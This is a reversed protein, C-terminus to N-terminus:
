SVTVNVTVTHTVTGSTGTITVPYTGAPTQLPNSCGALVVLLAAAGALGLRTRFRRAVPLMFLLMLAFATLAIQQLSIPPRKVSAPPILASGQTTVMVNATAPATVPVSPATCTGDPITISCSLTVAGTFGGVGGVTVAVSATAGPAVTVPQASVTFDWATGTLNLTQPSGAANDAINLIAAQAGSAGAPPTFTVNIVCTNGPTVAAGSTCTTGSAIAFDASNTGSVSPAATINLNANGTNKVTVTQATATTTVLQGTFTLSSPTVTVTPAAASGTGTLSITQPSNAANDTITLTASRAGTAGPTFTINIVCSSTPAVPSTTTCTTGSAIAFETSGTSPAVSFILNGTGGNTVTVSQAASTTGVPQPTAFNLTTTPNLTVTPITGTGTLTFIETQAPNSSFGATYAVSLTATEAASTSPTFVVGIACSAGAALSATCAPTSGSIAPTAVFDTSNTGSVTVPLPVPVAASTNNTLIVSQSLSATHILQNGFGVPCPSAAATSACATSGVSFGVTPILSLKSVFAASLAGGPLTTQFSGTSVPFDSSYTQGTLYVNGLTDLAVGYGQDTYNTSSVTTGSGGFYSSYLLDAAGNGGPNIKSVFPDGISSGSLAIKYAGPTVPFNSSQSTGTVIVNGLADVRVSNGTDGVTGGLLVSYPPAGNVTTNLKTIFAVGSVSAPSPFKGPTSQTETTTFNSSTTQGTVFVTGSGGLAIGNGLESTSGGVYTSYVLSNVGTLTTNVAAVFATANTNPAATLWGKINPFTGTSSMNPFNTSATTGVIYAIKSSDVALAWGIDGGFPNTQADNGGLYTSYVIANTSATTNVVTLFANGSANPLTTQAGNVIPFNPVAGATSLAEGTIYADQNSDVAIGHGLDGANSSALYSSYLVSSNGSVYPNLKTIFANGSTPAGGTPATSNYPTVITSLPFNDSFTQGTVYVCYGPASANMCTTNAAPDVAVSYGVDGGDGSLYSFYLEKTGTPDIESVFVGGQTGIGADPTGLGVTTAPTTTLPFSANYTVGTVFANGAGDVAISLGSDGPSASGGLYTSYNLVPDIVLPLAHDYTSVAFHVEGNKALLYGGSVEEKEGNGKRQYIVPKEFSVQGSSIKLVLNGQNDIHKERSGAFKLAIVKPDAGPSVLFDYELRHQNGYFALDVGPYVGEYQVRGYSPVNTVWNRRDNGAFYNAKRDLQNMAKIETSANSGPLQLRLVSAKRTLGDSPRLLNGPGHSSSIPARPQWLTLVAEKRTLFLEYGSGHTLYDVQADTQGMNREFALPLKGYSELAQIETEGYSSKGPSNTAVSQERGDAKRVFEEQTRLLTLLFALIPITVLVIAYVSAKSSSVRMKM